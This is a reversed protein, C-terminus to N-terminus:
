EIEEILVKFRNYLIADKGTSPYICRVGRGRRLHEYVADLTIAKEATAIKNNSTPYTDYGERVKSWLPYACQTIGKHVGRTPTHENWIKAVIWPM